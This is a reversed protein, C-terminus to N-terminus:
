CLNAEEKKEKAQKQIQQELNNTNDKRLEDRVEMLLKPFETGWKGRDQTHTLTANGTALLRQLAQPNQQFSAKILDKMVKSSNDNWRKVDLGKISRGISKAQAGTATMLKTEIDAMEKASLDTYALKAAQFAGEVTNYTVEEGTLPSAAKFPREAFNSLDANEGSAYWINITQNSSTNQKTYNNPIILKEPKIYNNLTVTSNSNWIQDVEILNKAREKEELHGFWYNSWDFLSQQRSGTIDFVDYQPHYELAIGDAGLWAVATPTHKDFVSRQYCVSKHKVFELDDSGKQVVEFTVPQVLNRNHRIFLNTVTELSTNSFSTTNDIEDMFDKYFGIQTKITTPFYEIFSSNTSLFGNRVVCYRLLDEVFGRTTYTDKKNNLKVDSIPADAQWLAEISDRVRTKEMPTLEYGTLTLVYFDQLSKKGKAKVSKEVSLKKLFFDNPLIGLQEIQSIINPVAQPFENIYYDFYHDRSQKQDINFQCAMIANYLNRYTTSSFYKPHRNIKKRIMEIGTKVDTFVFKNYRGFLLDIGENLAARYSAMKISYNSANENEFIDFLEDGFMRDEQPLNKYYELDYQYKVLDFNTKWQADSSSDIKAMKIVLPLESVISTAYDLLPLLYKQEDIIKGEYDLGIYDLLLNNSLNLKINNKAEDNGYALKQNEGISFKETFLDRIDIFTSGTESKEASRKEYERIFHQVLPQKMILITTELNFGLRLLSLAINVTAKNFGADNLLPDKIADVAASLLERLNDSVKELGDFTFKPDFQIFDSDNKNFKIGNVTLNLNKPFKVTIPHDVFFAHTQRHNAFIGVEEKSVMNRQHINMQTEPSALTEEDEYKDLEDQLVNSYLSSAYNYNERYSKGNEATMKTALLHRKSLEKLTRFGGPNFRSAVTDSHTLATIAIQLITNNIIGDVNDKAGQRVDDLKMMGTFTLPKHYICEIKPNYKSHVIKEFKNDPIYQNGEVETPRFTLHPAIFFMKDIDFDSGTIETIAAPLKISGGNFNTTFRKVKIAMMSCGGETPIRYCVLRRLEPFEREITDMDITGDPKMYMSILDKYYFPLEVEMYTINTIKGDKDREFEIQLNEDLLSSDKGVKGEKVDKMLAKFGDTIQVLQGGPITLNILNKKLISLFMKNILYSNSPDNLSMNFKGQENLHLGYYADFSFDQSNVLTDILLRSLKQNQEADTLNQETGLKEKIKNLGSFVKMGLAAEFLNKMQAGTITQGNYDYENNPEIDELLLKTFQVGLTGKFDQWHSATETQVGTSELPMKIFYDENENAVVTELDNIIDDIKRYQKTARDFIDVAKSKSVKVSSTTTIADIQNQIMFKHLRIMFPDTLVSLDLPIQEATKIQTPNLRNEKAILDYSFTKIEENVINSYNSNVKKNFENIRNELNEQDDECYIECLETLLNELDASCRNLMKLHKIYFPISMITAGDTPTNKRTYSDRINQIDNDIKKIFDNYQKSGEEINNNKLWQLKENRIRDCIFDIMDTGMFQGKPDNLTMIKKYSRAEEQHSNFLREIRDNYYKESNNTCYSLIPGCFQAFRKQADNWGDYFILDSSFLMMMQTNAYTQNFFYDKYSKLMSNEIEGRLNGLKDIIDQVSVSIKSLDKQGYQEAREKKIKEVITKIEKSYSGGYEKLFGLAKAFSAFNPRIHKNFSDNAEKQIWNEIIITAEKRLDDINAFNVANNEENAVSDILYDKIKLFFDKEYKTYNGELSDYNINDIYKNFVPLFVFRFEKKRLRKRDSKDIALLKEIEKKQLLKSDKSGEKWADEVARRIRYLEQMFVSSLYESTNTVTIPNLQGVQVEHEETKIRKGQILYETSKAEMIPALFMTKDSVEKGKQKSQGLFSTWAAEIYQISNLKKWSQENFTLFLNQKTVWYKSDELYDDARFGGDLYTKFDKIWSHFWPKDFFAAHFPDDTYKSLFERIEGVTGSKFLNMMKTIYNIYAYSYYLKGDSYFSTKFFNDFNYNLSTLLNTYPKYFAGKSGFIETGSNADSGTENLGLGDTKIKNVMNIFTLIGRKSKAYGGPVYRTQMKGGPLVVTITSGTIMNRLDTDNVSFRDFGLYKSCDFILNLMTPNKSIVRYENLIDTLAKKEIETLQIKSAEVFEKIPKNLLENFRQVTILNKDDAHSEIEKKTIIHYRNNTKNPVLFYYSALKKLLISRSNLKKFIDMNLRIVGNADEKFITNNSDRSLLTTVAEIKTDQSMDNVVFSDITGQDYDRSAFKQMFNFAKFVTTYFDKRLGLNVYNGQEDVETLAKYIPEFFENTGLSDELKKTMKDISNEAHCLKMINYFVEGEPYYKPQGYEDFQNRMKIRFLSRIQSSISKQFDINNFDNFVNQNMTSHSDNDLHVTENSDVTDSTTENITSEEDNNEAEKDLELADYNVKFLIGEENKIFSRAVDLLVLRYNENELLYSLVGAKESNFGDARTKVKKIAVNILNQLTAIGDKSVLELFTKRRNYIETKSCEDVLRCISEFLIPDSYFYLRNKNLANTIVQSFEETIYKVAQGIDTSTIRSDGVMDRMVQNIRNSIDEKQQKREYIKKLNELEQEKKREAVEESKINKSNQIALYTDALFQALHQEANHVDEHLENLRFEYIEKTLPAEKFDVGNVSKLQYLQHISENTLGKYRLLRQHVPSNENACFVNGM